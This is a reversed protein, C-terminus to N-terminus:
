LLFFFEKNNLDDFKDLDIKPDLDTSAVAGSRTQLKPWTSRASNCCLAEIPGGHVQTNM